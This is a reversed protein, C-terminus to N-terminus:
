LRYATRRNLMYASAIIILTLLESVPIALWLGPVDVMAPLFIFGPVMFVIGRLLMYIISRM